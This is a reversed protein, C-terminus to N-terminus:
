VGTGYLKHTRKFLNDGTGINGLYYANGCWCIWKCVGTGEKEVGKRFCWQIGPYLCIINSWRYGSCFLTTPLRTATMYAEAEIGTGFFGAILMDRALGLVKTLFTAIAMFGATKLMKKSNEKM